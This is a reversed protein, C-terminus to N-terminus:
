GEEVVLVSATESFLRAPVLVQGGASKLIVATTTIQVIEGQWEGIRVQQGVAYVKQLYHVALINSVTTRAGLGFALSGGFLIIGLLTIAATTLFDVNIGVQEVAILVSILLAAGQALRGLASGYAIGASAAASVILDRILIGGILGAFCILVGSLIRPLYLAIGSLWTTVVPLGLTETAATLFFILVIWYVVGGIVDAASRKMGLRRLSNRLRQGPVIRDLGGVLRRVLFRLLLALVFGAAMIALAGVLKPLIDLFQEEFRRALQSFDTILHQYNMM